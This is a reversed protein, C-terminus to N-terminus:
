PCPSHFFHRTGSDSDTNCPFFHTFDTIQGKPSQNGPSQGTENGTRMELDDTIDTQINYSLPSFFGTSSM